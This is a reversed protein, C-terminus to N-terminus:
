AGQEVTMGHRRASIAPDPPPPPPPPPAAGGGGGGWPGSRRSPVRSRAVTAPLTIFDPSVA